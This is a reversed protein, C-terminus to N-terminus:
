LSLFLNKTLPVKSKQSISSKSFGRFNGLDDLVRLKERTRSAELFSKSFKGSFL